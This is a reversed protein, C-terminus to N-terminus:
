SIDTSIELFTKVINLSYRDVYSFYHMKYLECLCSPIISLFMLSHYFFLYLLFKFKGAMTNMSLLKFGDEEMYLMWENM